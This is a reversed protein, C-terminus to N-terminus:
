HCHLWVSEDCKLSSENRNVLRNPKLEGVIRILGPGFMGECLGALKILKQPV